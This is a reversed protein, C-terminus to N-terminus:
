NIGGNFLRSLVQIQLQLVPLTFNRKIMNKSSVELLGYQEPCYRWKSIKAFNVTFCRRWLIKKFLTASRQSAVNNFFLSQNLHKGTFKSFNGFVGKKCFVEPPRSKNQPLNKWYEKFFSRYQTKHIMFTHDNSQEIHTRLTQIKWRNRQLVINENKQTEQRNHELNSTM